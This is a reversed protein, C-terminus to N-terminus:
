EGTEREEQGLPSLSELSMLSDQHRQVDLWSSSLSVGRTWSSLSVGFLSVDHSSSKIDLSMLVGFVDLLRSTKMINIDLSMLVGFVDLLRSWTMIDKSMLTKPCWTVRPTMIDKSMLDFVDHSMVQHGFVGKKRCRDIDSLRHWKIDRLRHWKIYIHSMSTVDHSMVQHGFVGKKLCWTMDCMHILGLWTLWTVLSLTFIWLDRKCFITEKVPSKQFLSMHSMVQNVSINREDYTQGMRSESTHTVHTMRIHSMVREYTHCSEKMHTVHSM